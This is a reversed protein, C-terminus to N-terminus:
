KVAELVIDKSNKLEDSAYYLALGKNKVAFLVVEKSNKIEYTAFEM